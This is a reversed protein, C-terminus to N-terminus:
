PEHRSDRPDESTVAIFLAALIFLALLCGAGYHM